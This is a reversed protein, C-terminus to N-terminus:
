SCTSDLRGSTLDPLLCRGVTTPVRLISELHDESPLATYSHLLRGLLLTFTTTTTHIPLLTTRIEVFSYLNPM